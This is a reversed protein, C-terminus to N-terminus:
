ALRMREFSGRQYLRTSNTDLFGTSMKSMSTGRNVTPSCFQKLHSYLKSNLAVCNKFQTTKLTRATALLCILDEMNVADKIRTEHTLSGYNKSYRFISTM